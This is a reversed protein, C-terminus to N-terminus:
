LLLSLLTHSRRRGWYQVKRSEVESAKNTELWRVVGVVIVDLMPVDFVSSTSLSLSLSLPSSVGDEHDDVIGNNFTTHELVALPSLEFFSTYWVFIFRAPLPILDFVRGQKRKLHYQYQHSRDVRSSRPHTAAAPPRPSVLLGCLKGSPVLFPSSTGYISSVAPTTPSSRAGM